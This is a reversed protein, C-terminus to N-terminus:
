TTPGWQPVESFERPWELTPRVGPDDPRAFLLPVIGPLDSYIFPIALGFMNKQSIEGYVKM